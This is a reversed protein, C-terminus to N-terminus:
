TSAPVPMTMPSPLKRSAAAPESAARRTAAATSPIADDTAFVVPIVNKECAGACRRPVLMAIKEADSRPPCDSPGATEPTTDPAAPQRVASTIPPM